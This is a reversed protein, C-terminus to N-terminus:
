EPSLRYGVGHVTVIKLSEEGNPVKLKARLRNIAVKVTQVSAESYSSWVRKMLSESNFVQDPNRMFFELLAFEQPSLSVKQGHISVQHKGPDLEVHGQRLIDSRREGSRRLLARVRAVLESAHFPKTLYDDGGIDLGEVRDGVGSRGTLFIIAGTGGRDRYRRCLEIGSGDPLNVDLVILDYDNTSLLDRAEGATNSIEVLHNELELYDGITRALEVDDEVCLLKAM